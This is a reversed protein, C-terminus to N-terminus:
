KSPPGTKALTTLTLAVAIVACFIVVTELFTDYARYDLLINAVLNYGISEEVGEEIYREAVYNHHPNDPHGYLPMEMVVLLLMYNVALAISFVVALFFMRRKSM